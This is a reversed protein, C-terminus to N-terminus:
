GSRTNVRSKPHSFRRSTSLSLDVLSLGADLKRLTHPTQSFPSLCFQRIASELVGDELEARLLRLEELSVVMGAGMAGGIGDIPEDIVEVAPEKGHALEMARELAASKSDTSHSQLPVEVRVSGTEARDIRLSSRRKMVQVTELVVVVPEM